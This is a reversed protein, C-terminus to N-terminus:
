AAKREEHGPSSEVSLADGDRRVEYSTTGRPSRLLKGLSLKIGSWDTWRVLAGNRVDFQSGHKPCTVIGGDLSGESLDGGMHPCRDDIAYYSDGVRALLLERGDVEVKKMEGDQLEGARGIPVYESVAGGDEPSIRRMEM